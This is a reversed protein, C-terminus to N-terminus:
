TCGPSSTAILRLNPAFSAGLQQNYVWFPKSFGKFRTSLAEFNWMPGKEVAAAVEGPM